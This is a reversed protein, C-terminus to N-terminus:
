IQKLCHYRFDKDQEVTLIKLVNQHDLKIQTTYERDATKLPKLEIRKVAVDKGKYTGRFVTSNREGLVNNRDFKIKGSLPKPYKSRSSNNGM